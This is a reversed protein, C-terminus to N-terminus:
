CRQGGYEIRHGGFTRGLQGLMELAVRQLAIGATVPTQDLFALATDALDSKVFASVQTHRHIVDGCEGAIRSLFLREEM